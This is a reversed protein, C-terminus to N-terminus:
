LEYPGKEAGTYERIIFDIQERSCIDQRIVADLSKYFSSRLRELCIDHKDSTETSMTRLSVPGTSHDYFGKGSKIGHSGNKIKEHLINLILEYDAKEALRATYNRISAAMIDVGVHDFFLFVGGPFIHEDVMLDIEEITMLGEQLINVAETQIGLFLKNIIFTNPEHLKLFFKGTHELFSELTQITEDSTEPSANIEALNKLNVPFFFHLGACNEKMKMESFLDSPPISSTNSTIICGPKVLKELDSFIKKKLLINEPIAEIILDSGELVSIQPGIFVSSSRKQSQEPTLIGNKLLRSNKKEFSNRLVVAQEENECLLSISFEFGALFQFVSTGMKGAGIIGIHMQPSFSM